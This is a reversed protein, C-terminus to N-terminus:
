RAPPPLEPLTPAFVSVVIRVVIGYTDEISVILELLNMSRIISTAFVDQDDTFARGGGLQTLLSRVQAHIQESSLFSM